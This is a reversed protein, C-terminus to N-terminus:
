RPDITVSWSPPATPNSVYWGPPSSSNEHYIKGGLWGLLAANATNADVNGNVAVQLGSGQSFVLSWAQSPSANDWIVQDAGTIWTNDPSTTGTSTGGQLAIIQDEYTSVYGLQTDATALAADALAKLGAIDAATLPSGAQITM